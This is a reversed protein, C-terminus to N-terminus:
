QLLLLYHFIRLHTHDSISCDCVASGGVACHPLAVPCKCYCSMLSVSFALCGAWEEVYFHNFFSSNVYLLAYWAFVMM